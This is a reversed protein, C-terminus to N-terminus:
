RKLTFHGKFSKGDNLEAIFWYDDTPLKQGNYSGNWFPNSNTLVTIVKGYRDFISVRFVKPFDKTIGKLEWYENVGDGNPTFFKPFGLVQIIQSEVGCNAKVDRIYVTLEGPSVEYFINSSQYPGFGSTISYEYEGEGSVWIVITNSSIFDSIEIDEIAAISSPLVEIQRISTCGQNNTVEVSYLGVENVEIISSTAGNSWTYQYNDIDASTLGSYLTITEPYANLCYYVSENPELEPPIIVSLNVEFIGYCDIGSFVKAYITELYPMSNSYNLELANRDLLADSYNNFYAVESNVPMGILINDKFLNLDFQAIGDRIEDDCAELTFDTSSAESVNLVINAVKYCGTIINEVKAFINQQNVVNNYNLANIPISLGLDEFYSVVVDSSNGQSIINSYDDLRFFSLGDNTEDDCQQISLDNALPLENVTITLPYRETSECTSFQAQIWYTTTEFLQVTLETGTNIVTNSLESEFWFIEDTNTEVSLVLEDGECTVEDIIQIQPMLIESSDSLSIQPDGPMGGYEIFYGKPYYASTPNLSGTIPLDNWSGLIGISPDTIHAYDENGGFDNPEGNNWFSFANNVPTGSVAGQWFAMGSEPGTVWKWISETEADTAGIWGVGPSQAGALQAEEATTLTALYGQLGYYSQSEAAVRAEQWSIGPASIYSYYHGTTPLFNAGGINFSFRRNATFFTQTTVFQVALIAQEFQAATAPGQLILQGLNQNWETTIGIQNQSLSLQDFGNAYGESIQIVIKDLTNDAGGPNFLNVDTAISMPAGACYNQSGTVSIAPISSQTFGLTSFLFLVLVRLM